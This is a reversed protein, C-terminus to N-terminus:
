NEKLVKEDIYDTLYIFFDKESKIGLQKFCDKTKSHMEAWLKEIETTLKSYSVKDACLLDITSFCDQQKMLKNIEDKPEVFYFDGVLSSHEWPVQKYKYRQIIDSRVKKFLDEIKLNEEYIYRCLSETYVGNSGSGDSAGEGPSTAFAIFTGQPAIFNSISNKNSGRTREINTRCCDLIVISIFDDEKSIENVLDTIDVYDNEIDSNGEPADCPVLFNRGRYEFGHGAYYFLAISVGYLDTKFEYICSGFEDRNLNKYTKVEFGLNELVNTMMEADNVANPLSDDRYNGNGIVYAKKSM